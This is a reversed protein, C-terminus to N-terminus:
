QGLHSSGDRVLVRHLELGRILLSKLATIGAVGCAFFGEKTRLHRGSNARRDYAKIGIRRRSFSVSPLFGLPIRDRYSFMHFCFNFKVFHGLPLRVEYQATAQFGTPKQDLRCAQYSILSILLEKPYHTMLANFWGM